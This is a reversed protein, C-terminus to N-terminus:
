RGAEHHAGPPTRFSLRSARFAFTLPRGREFRASSGTWTRGRDLHARLLATILLAFLELSARETQGTAHASCTWPLSPTRAVRTKRRASWILWGALATSFTLRACHPSTMALM